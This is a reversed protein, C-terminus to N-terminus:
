IFSPKLSRKTATAKSRIAYFIFLQMLFYLFSVHSSTNAIIILLDLTNSYILQVGHVNIFLFHFNTYSTRYLPEFLSRILFFIEMM